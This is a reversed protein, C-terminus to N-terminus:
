YKLIKSQYITAVLQVCGMTIFLINFSLYTVILGGIVLAIGTVIRDFGSTVGWVFGDHKKDEYKAYLALWTPIYFAAAVGLGAQVLFLHIPASVLLYAFTFLANLGYGLLMLKKKGIKDSINGIYIMLVGMVILYVAWAWSINLVNGGIREGFIAFLPGLMGEGLCWLFSGIILIKEEHRFKSLIKIEKKFMNIDFLKLYILKVWICSLLM